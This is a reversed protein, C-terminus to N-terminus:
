GNRAEMPLTITVAEKNRMASFTNVQFRLRHADQWEDCAKRIRAILDKEQDPTMDFIPGDDFESCARDSDYIADEAREVIGEADIWDAIRLLDQRAETVYFRCSATDEKEHYGLEEDVACAIVQEKTDCPGVRYFEEDASAWWQWGNEQDAM